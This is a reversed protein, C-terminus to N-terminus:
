RQADSHTPDIADLWPGINCIKGEHQMEALAGGLTITGSASANTAIDTRM